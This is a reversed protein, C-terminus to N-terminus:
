HKFIANDKCIDHTFNLSVLSPLSTKPSKEETENFQVMHPLGIM